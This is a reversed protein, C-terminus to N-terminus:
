RRGGFLQEHTKVRGHGHDSRAEAISDLYKPCTLAILDEILTERDRRKMRRVADVLTEVPVGLHINHM